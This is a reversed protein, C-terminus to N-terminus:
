VSYLMDGDVLIFEDSTFAFGSISVFGIRRAKFAKLARIEEAKKQALEYPMRDKLYKVEFVDYGDPFELVVDFEGTCHTIRDNYWYSGMDLISKLRGAKALRSFYQKAIDEFRYSLYTDLSPLIINEAVAEPGIRDIRSRYPFVYTFYFRFLNDGITYFAKRTNEKENIPMIKRVIDNECLKALWRSLNGTNKQDFVEKLEGYSRKGNGIRNLISLVPGIKGFEKLLTNEVLARASGQPSLLLKIINEELTRSTDITELVAPSGGFVAYLAAKERNPLSEYFSSAELYDFENLKVTVHFRDFLPNSYDSLEAMVSVASGSIIVRVRTGELSDIIKQMMSDSQLGGYSEKLENYEDLVVVIDRELSVLFRFVEYFSEFHRWSDNMVVGIERTLQICNSEYSESTCQFYIITGSYSELAKNILTTKGVRRKGYVLLAHKRSSFFERIIQLEKERHYFM